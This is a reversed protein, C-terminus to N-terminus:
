VGTECRRPQRDNVARSGHAVHKAAAAEAHQLPQAGVFHRELAASADGVVRQQPSQV